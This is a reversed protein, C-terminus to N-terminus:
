NAQQPPEILQQLLNPLGPLDAREMNVDEGSSSGVSIGDLSESAELSIEPILDPSNESLSLDPLNNPPAPPSMLGSAAQEEAAEAAVAAPFLRCHLPVPVVGYKSAAYRAACPPAHLQHLPSCMLGALSGSGLPPQAVFLCDRFCMM